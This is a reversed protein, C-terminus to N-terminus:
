PCGTLGARPTTQSIRNGQPDYSFCTRRNQGDATEITGRLRLNDATGDPGYEYTTTIQTANPDCAATTSNPMTQCQTESAPLWIPDGSTVLNGSGDLVWANQQSYTYLKLPRAEATSPAPQMEWAPEGFSTYGWNTQNGRADIKSTPKACSATPTSSTCSYGYTVSQDSLSSGLKASTTEKSLARLPGYYEARYTNGEPNVAKVLMSGVDLKPSFYEQEYGFGGEYAYYTTNGNPDTSSVPTTGTFVYNWTKGSPDTVSAENDGDTPLYDADRVAPISWHFNWVSGDGLTQTLHRDSWENKIKCATYGAPKICFADEYSTKGVADTVAIGASTYAYTVKYTANACTTSADVITQARDFACAATVNGYAGHDFVIAYGSSDSVMKLMDSVYSFSRVLGNPFVISTVYHKATSADTPSSTSRFTYVVGAQDIYTYHGGSFTLEGRSAENSNAIITVPNQFKDQRFEGSAGLGMHVIPRYHQPFLMIKDPADEEGEPVPGDYDQYVAPVFNPQVYINFNTAPLGNFSQMPDNPYNQTYSVFRELQLTGISLDTNQYVFTGDSISVGTPSMTYVHPPIVDNAPAPASALLCPMITSTLLACRVRLREREVSTSTTM